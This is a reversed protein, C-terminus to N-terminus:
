FFYFVTYCRNLARTLDCTSHLHNCWALQMMGLLHYLVHQWVFTHQLMNELSEKGTIDIGFFRRYHCVGVYETDHVNKWIWYHATMECYQPNKQSINDGTDDGQMWAMEDSYKSVARGVHIPVFVGDSPISCPKHTVIYIRLPHMVNSVSNTNISWFFPPPPAWTRFRKKHSDSGGEM